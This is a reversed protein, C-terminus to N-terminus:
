AHVKRATASTQHIKAEAHLSASLWSSSSLAVMLKQIKMQNGEKQKGTYNGKEKIGSSGPSSIDCRCSLKKYMRRLTYMRFSWSTKTIDVDM